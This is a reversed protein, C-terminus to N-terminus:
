KANLTTLMVGTKTTQSGTLTLEVVKDAAGFLRKGSGLVIPHIMLLFEDVLADALLSRVLHGSGMVILNGSPKKKLEAIAKPVDGSVLNSNPWPLQLKQNSSVVYKSFNNLSDKFPGGKANWGALLSEYTTRGLLLASGTQSMRDGIAAFMAPDNRSAAWGGHTFDGSNDENRDGPAQMVGDLTLHNIVVIKM